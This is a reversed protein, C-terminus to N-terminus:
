TYTIHCVPNFVRLSAATASARSPGRSSTGCHSVPNPVPHIPRGVLATPYSYSTAHAFQRRRHPTTCLPELTSQDFLRQYRRTYKPNNMSAHINVVNFIGLISHMIHFLGVFLLCQRSERTFYFTNYNTAVFVRARGQLRWLRRILDYRAAM